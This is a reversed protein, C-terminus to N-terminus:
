CCSFLISFFFTCANEATVTVELDKLASIANVYAAGANRNQELFYYEACEQFAMILPINKPNACSAELKAEKSAAKEAKEEVFGYKEMLKMMIDRPAKDNHSMVFQGVEMKADRNEPLDLKGEVLNLFDTGAKKKGKNSDLDLELAEAKQLLEQAVPNDQFRDAGEIEGRAEKLQQIMAEKEEETPEELYFPLYRPAKLRSCTYSCPIPRQMEESFHGGCHVLDYDKEVFKLRGEDM